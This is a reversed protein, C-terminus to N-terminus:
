FREDSGAYRWQGAALPGLAVRGIRLRRIGVVQMNAAACAQRLLRPSLGKGAFRLRQESQWSIRCPPQPRGGDQLGAQLRGVDWLAREGRVDVLFEQELRPLTQQLYALIRPDQSVVVLGSDEAPLSAGLQLGHFHRQLIRTGGADLTSRTDPTVQACLAHAPTGAPKNLLMSARELRSDSAQEAVQPAADLGVQLQPQEVVVGDLSVWGGEILRRAEGRPCGLLEALRRDLRTTPM